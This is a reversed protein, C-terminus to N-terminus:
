LFIYAPSRCFRTYSLRTSTWRSMSTWWRKGASARPWSWWTYASVHNHNRHSRTNGERPQPSTDLQSNHFLSTKTIITSRPCRFSSSLIAMVAVVSTGLSVQGPTDLLVLHLPPLPLTASGSWRATAPQHSLVSCPTPRFASWYSPLDNILVHLRQILPFGAQIM